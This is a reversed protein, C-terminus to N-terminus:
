IKCAGSLLVAFCRRMRQVRVVVIEVNFSLANYVKTAQSEGDKGCHSSEPFKVFLLALHNKVFKFWSGNIEVM